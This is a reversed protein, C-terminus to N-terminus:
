NSSVDATLICMGLISMKPANLKSFPPQLWLGGRSVEGGGAGGGGEM